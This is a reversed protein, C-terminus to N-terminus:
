FEYSSQLFINILQAMGVTTMWSLMGSIQRGTASELKKLLDAWNPTSHPSVTGAKNLKKRM